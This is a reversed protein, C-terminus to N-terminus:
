SPSEDTAEIVQRVTDVDLCLAQAVAALAREHTSPDQPDQPAIAAARRYSARVQTHTTIPTM